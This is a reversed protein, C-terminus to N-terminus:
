NRRGKRIEEREREREMDNKVFFELMGESLGRNGLFIRMDITDPFDVISRDLSGRSLIVRSFFLTATNSRFHDNTMSFRKRRWLDGGSSM